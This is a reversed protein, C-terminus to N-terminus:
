SLTKPFLVGELYEGHDESVVSRHNGNILWGTVLPLNAWPPPEHLEASMSKTFYMSRGDAVKVTAIKHAEAYRLAGSQFGSTTFLACKQAGVSRMKDHLAQLTERKVSNKYHKCEVLVLFNMGLFEFRATVDIEYDGDSGQIVERHESNYELLSHGMADLMSRVHREFDIPSLSLQPYRDEM